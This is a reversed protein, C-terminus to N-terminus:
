LINMPRFPVKAQEWVTPNLYRLNQPMISYPQPTTHVLLFYWERAFSPVFVKYVTLFWSPNSQFRRISTYLREMEWPLYGGLNLVASGSPHLWSSCLFVLDNWLDEHSEKTFDPDILDVVICDYQREQHLLEQINKNEISVHPDRLAHANLWSYKSQFLDTVSSDWDLIDVNQVDPWKLVERVACGDGGGMICIRKPNAFSLCPHILMEHYIYEDKETLQLENDLFFALGFAKTPVIEILAKDSRWRIIEGENLVYERFIEGDNERYFAM